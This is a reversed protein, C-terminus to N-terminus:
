NEPPPPYSLFQRTLQIHGLHLASHEIAHLLADRVTVPQEATIPTYAAPPTVIQEMRKAPLIDLDQHLATIWNEYRTTLEALTGRAHFESPRDRPIDRGSVLVLTWFE